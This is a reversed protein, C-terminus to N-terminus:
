SVYLTHPDKEPLEDENQEAVQTLEIPKEATLLTWSDKERETFSRVANIFVGGSRKFRLTCRRADKFCSAWPDPPGIGHMVDFLGLLDGVRLASPPAYSAESILVDGDSAIATSKLRAPLTTSGDFFVSVICGIGYTYGDRFFGNKFNLRAPDRAAVTQFFSQQISLPGQARM